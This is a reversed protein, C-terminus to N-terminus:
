NLVSEGLVSSHPEKGLLDLLTPVIDTTKCVELEMKPIELSGGIILPVFMSKRSAIDHPLVKLIDMNM